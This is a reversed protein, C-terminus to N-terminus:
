IYSVDKIPQMVKGYQVTLKSFVSIAFTQRDSGPELGRRGTRDEQEDILARTMEHMSADAVGSPSRGHIYYGYQTHTMIFMSINSVSCFDVFQGLKDEICREYFFTYFVWQLAGLGTYVSMIVAIRLINSFPAQYENPDQNLINNLDRRSLAELDVVKILILSFILQITTNVRRFTQLENWENAVFLTRWCSAAKNQDSTIELQNTVVAAPRLQNAQSSPNNSRNNFNNSSKPREWDIFFIDYSTQLLILYLVDVAKIVCATLVLMPFLWEQQEDPLVLYVYKQTRFFSLYKIM